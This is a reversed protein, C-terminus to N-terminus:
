KILYRYHPRQIPGHAIITFARVTKNGDSIATEINVGVHSTLVKLKNQNLNKKKIRYALKEISNEYHEEAEKKMRKPFEIKDFHWTPSNHVYKQETFYEQKSSYDTYSSKFYKERRTLNRVVQKKAWEETMKVYQKKLSKTEKKLMELLKM